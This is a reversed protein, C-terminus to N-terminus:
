LNIINGAIAVSKINIDDDFLILDADKGIEISGKKNNLNIAAAPTLSAM